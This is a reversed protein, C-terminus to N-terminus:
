CSDMGESGRSRDEARRSCLNRHICSRYTRDARRDVSARASISRRICVNGRSSLSSSRRCGHMLLCDDSLTLIAIPRTVHLSVFNGTEKSNIKLQWKVRAKRQVLKSCSKRHNKQLNEAHIKLYNNLSPFGGFSLNLFNVSASFLFFLETIQPSYNAYVHLKIEHLM